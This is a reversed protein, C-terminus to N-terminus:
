LADLPGVLPDVVVGGRATGGVLGDHELLVPPHSVLATQVLETLDLVLGSEFNNTAPLLNGDLLLQCAVHVPLKAIAPIRVSAIMIIREGDVQFIVLGLLQHILMGLLHLLQILSPVLQISLSLPKLIIEKRM